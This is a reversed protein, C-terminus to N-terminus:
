WFRKNPKINTSGNDFLKRENPRSSNGNYLSVNNQIRNFRLNNLIDAGSSGNNRISNGSNNDNSTGNGSHIGGSGGFFSTHITDGSCNSINDSNDNLNNKLNKFSNTPPKLLEMPISGDNSIDLHNREIEISEPIEENLNHHNRNQLSISPSSVTSHSVIGSKISHDMEIYYDNLTNEDPLQSFTRIDDDEDNSNIFRNRNSNSRYDNLNHNYYFNNKNQCYQQQKEIQQLNDNNIYSSHHNSNNNNGSSNSRSSDSNHIFYDQYRLNSRSSNNNNNNSNYYHHWSSPQHKQCRYVHMLGLLLLIGFTLGIVIFLGPHNLNIAEPNKRIELWQEPPMGGNVNEHLQHLQQKEKQEKAENNHLHQPEHSQAIYSTLNNNTINYLNDKTSYKQTSILSSANLNEDINNKIFKNLNSTENIKNSSMNLSGITTPEIANVLPKNISDLNNKHLKLASLNKSSSTNSVNNNKSDKNEKRSNISTHASHQHMLKDDSMNIEDQVRSLKNQNETEHELKFQKISPEDAIMMMTIPEIVNEFTIATIPSTTHHNDYTDTNTSYKSIQAFNKSVNKRTQSNVPKNRHHNETPMESSSISQYQHIETNIKSHNKELKGNLNYKAKITMHNPTHHSESPTILAPFIIEDKNISKTSIESTEEKTLSLPPETIITKREKIEFLHLEPHNILTSTSSQQPLSSSQANLNINQQLKFLKNESTNSSMSKIIVTSSRQDNPKENESLKFRKTNHQNSKIGPKTMTTFKQISLSPGNYKKPFIDSTSQQENEEFYQNRNSQLRVSEHTSKEDDSDTKDNNDDDIDDNNKLHLISKPILHQHELKVLETTDKKFEIFEENGEQNNNKNNNSQQQKIEFNINKELSSPSSSLEKNYNHNEHSKYNLIGDNHYHNLFYKHNDTNFYYKENNNNSDTNGISDVDEHNDDMLSEIEYLKIHNIGNKKSNNIINTKNNNNNNNGGKHTDDFRSVNRYNLNKKNSIITTIDTLTSSHLQEPPITTTEVINFNSDQITNTNPTTKISTVTTTPMLINNKLISDNNSTYENVRNFKEETNTIFTMKSNNTTQHQNMDSILSMLTMDNSKLNGNTLSEISPLSSPSLTTSISSPLKTTLTLQKAKPLTSLINLHQKEDNQLTFNINNLNENFEEKNNKVNSNKSSLGTTKIEQFNKNEYNENQKGNPKNPIQKFYTFKTSITADTTGGRSIEFENNESILNSIVNLSAIETTTEPIINSNMRIINNDNQNLYFENLNYHDDSSSAPTVTEITPQNPIDSYILTTIIPNSNDYSKTTDDSNKSDESTFKIQNKDKFLNSNEMLNENEPQEQIKIDVINTTLPSTASVESYKKEIEISNKDSLEPNQGTLITTNQNFKKTISNKLLPNQNLITTLLKQSEQEQQPEQQNENLKMDVSNIKMNNNQNQQTTKMNDYFQEREQRINYNQDKTIFNREDVYYQQNSNELLTPSTTPIPHLSATSLENETTENQNNTTRASNANLLNPKQQGFTMINSEKDHNDKITDHKHNEEVDNDFRIVENLGNNNQKYQKSNQQQKQQQLNKKQQQRQSSTTSNFITKNSNRNFSSHNKRLNKNQKNDIKGLMSATNKNHSSKETVPKNTKSINGSKKNKNNKNSKNNDDLPIQVTISSNTNMENDISKTTTLVVKRKDTSNVNREKQQDRHGKQHQHQQEHQKKQNVQKKVTTSFTSQSLSPPITSLRKLKSRNIQDFKKSFDKKTRSHNNSFSKNNNHNNSKKDNSNHKNNSLNQPVNQPAMPIQEVLSSSLKSKSKDNVKGTTTENRQLFDYFHEDKLTKGAAYLRRDKIITGNNTSWTVNNQTLVVVDDEDISDIKHLNKSMIPTLTFSSYTTLIEETDNIRSIPSKLVQNQKEEQQQIIQPKENNSNLNKDIDVDDDAASDNLLSFTKNVNNRKNYNINDNNKNYKYNDNYSNKQNKLSSVIDINTDNMNMQIEPYNPLLDFINELTSHNKNDIGSSNYSNKSNNNNNMSNIKNEISSKPINAFFGPLIRNIQEPQQKQENSLNQQQQPQQNETTIKFTISNMNMGNANNPQQGVKLENRNIKSGTETSFFSSLSSINAIQEVDQQKEIQHYKSFNKQGFFKDNSSFPIDTTEITTINIIPNKIAIKNAGSLSTLNLRFSDANYININSNTTHNETSKQSFTPITEVYDNDPKNLFASKIPILTVTESITTAPTTVTNEKSEPFKNMSYINLTSLKESSINTTDSYIPNKITKDNNEAQLPKNEFKESELYQELKKKSDIEKTIYERNGSQNYNMTTQDDDKLNKFNNSITGEDAVYEDSNQYEKMNNKNLINKEYIERATNEQQMLMQIQHLKMQRDKLARLEVCNPRKSKLKNRIEEYENQQCCGQLNNNLFNDNNENFKEFYKYSNEIINKLEKPIIPQEINLRNSSTSPTTLSSVSAFNNLIANNNATNYLNEEHCGNAWEAIGLLDSCKIPNDDLYLDRLKPSEKVLSQSLGKLEASQLNLTLLKPLPLGPLYLLKNGSLDLVKLNILGQFYQPQIEIIQNYQLFLNELSTPLSIPIRKLNNHDLFLTELMELRGLADDEIDDINSYSLDLYQLLPYSDLDGCNITALWNDKLKLARVSQALAAPIRCLGTGSIDLEKLSWSAVFEQLSDGLEYNYALSLGILDPIGSLSKVSEGHINNNSLDLYQLNPLVLFTDFDIKHINNYSLILTEINILNYFPEKFIKQNDDNDNNNNIENKLNYYNGGITHSIKNGTNSRYQQLQSQQQQKQQDKNKLDQRNQVILPKNNNNTFKFSHSSRSTDDNNSDSLIGSNWYISNSLINNDEDRLIQHITDYPIRSPFDNSNFTNLIDVDNNGHHHYHPNDINNYHFPNLSHYLLRNKVIQSQQQLPQEQNEKQHHLVTSTETNEPKASKANKLRQPM